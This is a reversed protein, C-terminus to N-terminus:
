VFNWFKHLPSDNKDNSLLTANKEIWSIVVECMWNGISLTSLFYIPASGWHMRLKSYPADHYFHCKESLSRSPTVPEVVPPVHQVRPFDSSHRNSEDMVKQLLDVQDIEM